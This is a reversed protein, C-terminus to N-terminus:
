GRVPTVVATESNLTDSGKEEEGWACNSRLVASHFVAKIDDNQVAVAERCMCHRESGPCRVHPIESRM